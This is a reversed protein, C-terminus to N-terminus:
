CVRPLAIQQPEEAGTPILCIFRLDDTGRNILCHNEGGPIFVTTGEGIPTEKGDKDRAFGQGALVFIEHEWFHAHDPSTHGPSIDFVRMIFNPAGEEPGIPVRKSVGPMPATAPIDRYDIIKMLYIGRGSAHIPYRHLRPSATKLYEMKITIAILKRNQNAFSNCARYSSRM